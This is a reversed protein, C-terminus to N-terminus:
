FLGVEEDTTLREVVHLSTGLGCYDVSPTGALHSLACPAFAQSFSM